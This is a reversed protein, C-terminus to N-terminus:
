VWSGGRRTEWRRLRAWSCFHGQVAFTQPWAVLSGECKRCCSSPCLLHVLRTHSCPVGNWAGMEQFYFGKGVASTDMCAAAAGLDTQKGRFIAGSSKRLLDGWGLQCDRM